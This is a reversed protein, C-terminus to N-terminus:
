NGLDPQAIGPQATPDSGTPPPDSPPGGPSAAASPQASASPSPDASPSDSPAPNAENPTGFQVLSLVFTGWHSGSPPTDTGSDVTQYGIALQGTTSPSADPLYAWIVVGKQVGAFHKGHMPTGQPVAPQIAKQDAHLAASAYAPDGSSVGIM